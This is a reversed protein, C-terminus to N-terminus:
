NRPKEASSFDKMAQIKKFEDLRNLAKLRNYIKVWACDRDEGVECKGQNVGGCPGNLLGKSCNTVPCIGGTQNIICSGCMSCHEVFNGFRQVNGLFMTDNATFVPKDDMTNAVSQAGAGCAMTVIAQAQAVADKHQRLMRKMDLMHCASEAVFSGTVQKGAEQLKKIMEAVQEEGGTLCVTACEGCGVIFVREIGKLCDLVENFPKQRSVIM